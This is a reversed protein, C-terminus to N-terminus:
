IKRLPSPFSPSPQATIRSCQLAVRLDVVGLVSTSCVVSCCERWERRFVRVLPLTHTRKVALLFIEVKVPGSSVLLLTTRERRKGRRKEREKKEREKKEREKEREGGYWEREGKGEGEWRRRENDVLLFWYERGRSKPSPSNDTASLVAASDSTPILHQPLFM